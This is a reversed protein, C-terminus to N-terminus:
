GPKTIMNEYLVSIYIKTIMKVDLNDLMIIFIKKSIHVLLFINIKSDCKRM